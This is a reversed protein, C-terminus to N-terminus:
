PTMFERFQKNHFSFYEARLFRLTVWKLAHDCLYHFAGMLNEMDTRRDAEILVAEWHISQRQIQCKISKNWNTENM